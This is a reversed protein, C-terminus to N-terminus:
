HVVVQVGFVSFPWVSRTRAYGAFLAVWHAVSKWMIKSTDLIM